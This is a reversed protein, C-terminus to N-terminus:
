RGTLPGCLDYVQRRLGRITGRGRGFHVDNTLLVAWQRSPPDLAIATGTFGTHSVATMPWAEGLFDFDDGRLVWGLGRRGDLGPTQDACAQACWPQLSPRCSIDLWATLYRALDDATSFLGAHGMVGGFYRANEDHVVGLTATGDASMETAATRHCWERGPNFLTSSMGLPGTLLDHVARDLPMASAAEVVQGLLMFGVDSYRVRSGPRAELATAAVVDRSAPPEVAQQWFKVEAPLGSSHSLLQRVTVLERGAGVFRPVYACAREDLDLARRDALLLTCSTTAVIKTLSALDFLTGRQMPRRDGGLSQADGVAVVQCVDAGTGAVLVAGPVLGTAVADSLVDKATATERATM